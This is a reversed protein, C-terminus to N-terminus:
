RIEAFIRFESDDHFDPGPSLLGTALSEVTALSGQLEPQFQLNTQSQSLLQPSARFVLEM